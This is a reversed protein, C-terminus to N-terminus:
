ARAEGPTRPRAERLLRLSVRTLLRRLRRPGLEASLLHLPGLYPDNPDGRNWGGLADKLQKSHPVYAGRGLLKEDSTGYVYPYGSKTQTKGHAALASTSCAAALALALLIKTMAITRIFNFNNPM